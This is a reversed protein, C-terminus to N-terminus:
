RAETWYVAGCRPCQGLWYSLEAGSALTFTYRGPILHAGHCGLVAPWQELHWWPVDLPRVFGLGECAAAVTYPPERM